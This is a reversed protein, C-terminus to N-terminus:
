HILVVEMVHLYEFIDSVYLQDFQSSSSSSIFETPSSKKLNPNKRCQLKEKRKNQTANPFNSLEGLVVRQRKPHQKQVVVMPAAAATAKRKAAARTEM